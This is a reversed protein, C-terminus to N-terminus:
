PFSPASGTHVRIQTHWLCVHLYSIHMYNYVYVYIKVPLCTHFLFFVLTQRLLINTFFLHTNKKFHFLNGSKTPQLVVRKTVNQGGVGHTHTPQAKGPSGCDIEKQKKLARLRGRSNPTFSPPPPPETRGGEWGSHPVGSGPLVKYM